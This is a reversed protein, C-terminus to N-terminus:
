VIFPRDFTGTKQIPVALANYQDAFGQCILQHEAWWAATLKTHPRYRLRAVGILQVQEIHNLVPVLLGEAHEIQGQTLMRQAAAVAAQYLAKEAPLGNWAVAHIPEGNEGEFLYPVWEILGLSQLHEIRHFFDVGRNKGEALEEKTLKEREHPLSVGCWSVWMTGGTFDWVTYAGHQGAKHRKYKMSMSKTRIGGDERLNQASYLEVLLRLTMVDQTQRLKTVPPVENAAGEVLARPLWILDGEKQLKYIPRTSKGPKVAVLGAKLLGKIADNATHWRVGIHNQIATASWKTTTNDRGTGCAMVLLACAPNMGLDCAKIFTTRGIAFFGATTM